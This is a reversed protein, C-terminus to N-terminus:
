EDTGGKRFAGSKLEYVPVEEGEQRFVSILQSAMTGSSGNEETWVVRLRFPTGSGLCASFGAENGSSEFGEVGDMGAILRFAEDRGGSSMSIEAVQEALIVAETREKAYLSRDRATVFARVLVTTILLMLVFLLLLEVIFSINKKRAMPKM